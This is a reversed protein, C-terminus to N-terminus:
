VRVKRRLKRGLQKGGSRSGGRCQSKFAKHNHNTM